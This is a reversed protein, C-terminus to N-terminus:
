KNQFKLQRGKRIIVNMWKMWHYQDISWTFWSLHKHAHTNPCAAVKDLLQTEKKWYGQGFFHDNIKEKM